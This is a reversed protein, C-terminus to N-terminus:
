AFAREQEEQEEKCALCLTAVPRVKLRSLALDEGCLECYFYTGNDIRQLAYEIKHLLQARREIIRAHETVLAEARALDAEDGHRSVEMDSSNFPIPTQNLLDSKTQSLLERFFAFERM